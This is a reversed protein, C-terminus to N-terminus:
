NFPRAFLTCSIINGTYNDSDSLILTSDINLLADTASNLLFPYCMLWSSDPETTTFYFKSINNQYLDINLLPQEKVTLISWLKVDTDLTARIFKFNKDDVFEGSFVNGNYLNVNFKATTNDTWEETVTHQENEEAFRPVIQANFNYFVEDFDENTMNVVVDKIRQQTRVNSYLWAKAVFNFQWIITRTREFTGTYDIEFDSNVLVFPIDTKIEFDSKDKITVNLEPTFFPLFQEIIKLSDEFKVTALFLSLRFNYPVRNLMYQDKIDRTHKMLSIPNTLRNPDFDISTLAFGFKPLTLNSVLIEFEGPTNVQFSEIFKEKPSYAIPVLREVGFDDYYKIDRFLIGFTAIINKITQFYFIDPRKQTM